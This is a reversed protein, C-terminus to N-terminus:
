PVIRIMAGVTQREFDFLDIQSIPSRAGWVIGVEIHDTLSRALTLRSELSMVERIRPGAPDLFPMALEDSQYFHYTYTTDFHARIQLPLDFFAIGKARRDIRPRIDIRHGDVRVPSISVQPTPDEAFATATTLLLLILGLGVLPTRRPNCCTRNQGPKRNLLDRM